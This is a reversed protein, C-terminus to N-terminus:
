LRNHENLCFLFILDLLYNMLKLIFNLYMMLLSCNAFSYCLSFLSDTEIFLHFCQHYNYHRLVSIFGWSFLFFSKNFMTSRIVISFLAYIYNRSPLHAVTNFLDSIRIKSTEDIIRINETCNIILNTKFGILMVWKRMFIIFLQTLIVTYISGWTSIELELFVTKSWIKDSDNMFLSKM